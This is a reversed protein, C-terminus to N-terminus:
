RPVAYMTARFKRYM